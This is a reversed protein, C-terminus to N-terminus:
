TRKVAEQAARSGFYSAVNPNVNLYNGAAAGAAGGAQGALSGLAGKVGGQLYGMAANGAVNAATAGATGATQGALGAWGGVAPLMMSMAQLFSGGSESKAWGHDEPRAWERAWVPNLQGNNNKYITEYTKLGSQGPQLGTILRYDQLRSDINKYLSNVQAADNFNTGAIAWPDMGAMKAMRALTNQAGPDVVERRTDVDGGQGEWTTPSWARMFASIGRMDVGANAGKTYEKIQNEAEPDNLNWTPVKGLLDKNGVLGYGSYMMDGLQSDDWGSGPAQPQVGSGANSLGPGRVVGAPQQEGQAGQNFTALGVTNGAGISGGVAYGPKDGTCTACTNCGCESTVHGGSAFDPTGRYAKNFVNDLEEDTAYRGLGADQLQKITSENYMNHTDRLGTNLMDRIDGWPGMNRVLDQVAPIYEDVPKLNQKGKIQRIDWPPEPFLEPRTERLRRALDSSQTVSGLSNTFEDAGAPDAERLRQMMETWSEHPRALEVTVHPRGKQDRLSLIRTNGGEVSSCYGGVCHGMATGENALGEPALEVWQYGTDPYTKMVEKIGKNMDLAAAAEEQWRKMAANWDGTKGAVEAFSMKPLKDPDIDLGANQLRRWGAVEDPMTEAHRAFSLPDALEDKRALGAYTAQDLYDRIHDLGLRNGLREVSMPSWIEAEEPLTDLWGPAGQWFHGRAAAPGMVDLEQGAMAEWPTMEHRGTMEYHRQQAWEPVRDRPNHGIDVPLRGEAELKLMPDGVTGFKNKIYDKTRKGMWDAVPNSADVGEMPEAEWGRANEAVKDVRPDIWNGGPAKVAGTQAWRSGGRVRGPIMSDKSAANEAMREFAGRLVPAAGKAGAAAGRVLGTAAVSLPVAAMSGLESVARGAASTPKLPAIDRWFDGTPLFPTEDVKKDEKAVLNLVQRATREIDGGFGLTGTALGRLAQLPVEAAGARDQRDERRKAVMPTRFAPKSLDDESTALGGEAYDHAAGYGHEVKPVPKDISVAGGSKFAKKDAHGVYEAAAKRKGLTKGKYAWKKFEPVTMEVMDSYGRWGIPYESHYGKYAAHENDFGLMVKHEDLKGTEPDNQDIVFVRADPSDHNPGLFVDIADKDHGKSGRVYGYDHNLTSEWPKGDKGVGKRTTGAANEISIRMGNILRHGKRYNGASKQAETPEVSGPIFEQDAM